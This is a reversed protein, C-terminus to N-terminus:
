GAPRPPPARWTEARVTDPDDPAATSRALGRANEDKLGRLSARFVDAGSFNGAPMQANSLDAYRLTAQSFDPAQLQAKSLVSETLDAGSFRAQQGQAQMWVTHNLRAGSFD